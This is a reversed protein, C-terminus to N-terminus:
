GVKLMLCLKNSIFEFNKYLVDLIVSADAPKKGPRFGIQVWAKVLQIDEDLAQMDKWTSMLIALGSSLADAHHM